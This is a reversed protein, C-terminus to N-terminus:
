LADFCETSALPQGKRDKDSLIPEGELPWDIGVEPDNWLLTREYDPAYYDTCKYFVDAM